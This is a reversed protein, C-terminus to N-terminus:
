LQIRPSTSLSGIISGCRDRNSVLLNHFSRSGISADIGNSLNVKVRGVVVTSQLRSLQSSYVRKGGSTQIVCLCSPGSPQIARRKQGTEMFTYVLQSNRNASEKNINGM